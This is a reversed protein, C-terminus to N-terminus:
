QVCFYEHVQLLYTTRTYLGRCKNKFTFTGSGKFTDEDDRSTSAVIASSIAHPYVDGLNSQASLDGGAFPMLCAGIDLDGEVRTRQQGTALMIGVLM